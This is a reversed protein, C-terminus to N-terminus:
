GNNKGHLIDNIAEELTIEPGGGNICDWCIYRDGKHRSLPNRKVLECDTIRKWKRCRCCRVSRPLDTGFEDLFSESM